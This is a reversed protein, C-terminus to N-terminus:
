VPSDKPFKEFTSIGPDSTLGISDSGRPISGLSDNKKFSGLHHQHATM